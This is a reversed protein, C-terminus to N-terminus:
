SETTWTEYLNELKKKMAEYAKAKEAAAKPDKYFSPDSMINEAERIEEELAIIENELNM